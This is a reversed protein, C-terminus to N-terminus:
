FIFFFISFIFLVFFFDICFSGINEINIFYVIIIKCATARILIEMVQGFLLQRTASNRVLIVSETKERRPRLFDAVRLHTSKNNDTDRSTVFDTLVPEGKNRNRQFIASSRQPAQISPLNSSLREGLIASHRKSSPFFDTNERRFGRVFNSIKSDSEQRKHGIKNQQSLFIESKTKTTNALLEHKVKEELKLNRNIEESKKKDIIIEREQKLKRENM